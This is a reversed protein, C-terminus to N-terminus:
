TKHSLINLNVNVNVDVNINQAINEDKFTVSPIRSFNSELLILNEIRYGSEMENNPTPKTM